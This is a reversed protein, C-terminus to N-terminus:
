ELFFSRLTKLFTKNELKRSSEGTDDKLTVRNNHENYMHAKQTITEYGVISAVVVANASSVTLTVNGDLDSSSGM